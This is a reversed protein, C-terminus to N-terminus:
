IKEWNKSDYRDGGKFRYTGKEGTQETGIELEATTDSVPEALIKKNIKSIIQQATDKNEEDTFDKGDTAYFYDRVAQNRHLQSTLNKKFLKDADAEDFRMWKGKSAVKGTAKAVTANLGALIKEARATQVKGDAEYKATLKNFDAYMRLYKKSSEVGPKKGLMSKMNAALSILEAEQPTDAPAKFSEKSTLVTRALEAYEPSIDENLEGENIKAMKEVMPIETDFLFETTEAENNVQVEYFADDMEIQRKEALDSLTKTREKSQLSDKVDQRGLLEKAGEPDTSLQGGIFAEMFDSEYDDMLETLKEESFIGEGFASLGAKSDKFLQLAQDINGVTGLQTAVTLNNARSNNISNEANVIEQNIGWAVNQEKARGIMKQSLETWKGRGNMSVSDSYQGYIKRYSQDLKALSEPDRPRGENEVRWTQTAEAMQINAESMSENMTAMDGKEQAREAIGQVTTGLRKAERGVAKYLEASSHPKVATDLLRKEARQRKAM